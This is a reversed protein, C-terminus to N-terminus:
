SAVRMGNRLVTALFPWLTKATITYYEHLQGEDHAIPDRVPLIPNHDPGPGHWAAKPDKTGFRLTGRDASVRIREDIHLANKPDTLSARLDGTLWLIKLQPANVGRTPRRLGAAKERKRLEVIEGHLRRRRREYAESWPAWRSQASAGQTQFLRRMNSRFKNGVERQCAALMADSMQLASAMTRIRPDIRAQGTIM